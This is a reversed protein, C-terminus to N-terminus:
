RARVERFGRAELRRISGGFRGGVRGALTGGSWGAPGALSGPLRALADGSVSKAQSVLSQLHGSCEGATVTVVDMGRARGRQGSWAREDHGSRSRCRSNLDRLLAGILHDVGESLEALGALGASGDARRVVRGM